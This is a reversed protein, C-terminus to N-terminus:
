RRRYRERAAQEAENLRARIAERAEESDAHHAALDLPQGLVVAIRSFPFPVVYRDWRPIRYATATFAGAPVILAKAKRAIFSLGQKPEHTPGDPGDPNVFLHKGQKLARILELLRRGAAMSDDGMSIVFPLAGMSQAWVSLAAGRSDDPVILVYRTPDAHAVLYSTLMMTLGHWAAIIFPRGTARAQEIHEEGEIQLRTTRWILRAYAALVWGQIYDLPTIRM